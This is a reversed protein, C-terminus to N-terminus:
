TGKVDGAEEADVVRVVDLVVGHVSAPIEGVDAAEPNDRVEVAVM